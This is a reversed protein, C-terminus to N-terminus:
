MGEPTFEFAEMRAKNAAQIEEEGFADGDETDVL